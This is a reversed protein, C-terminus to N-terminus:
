VELFMQDDQVLLMLMWKRPLLHVCMCPSLEAPQAAQTRPACHALVHMHM